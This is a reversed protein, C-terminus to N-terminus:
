NRFAHWLLTDFRCSASGRHVHIYEGNESWPVHATAMAHAANRGVGGTAIKSRRCACISAIIILLFILVLPLIIAIVLKWGAIGGGQDSDQAEPSSPATATVVQPISAAPTAYGPETLTIFITGAATQRAALSLTSLAPMQVLTKQLETIETGRVDRVGADGRVAEVFSCVSQHALTLFPHFLLSFSSVVSCFYRSTSSNAITWRHWAWWPASSFRSAGIVAGVPPSIRGHQVVRELRALTAQDFRRQGLTKGPRGSAHSSSRNPDCRKVWCCGGEGRRRRLLPLSAPAILM